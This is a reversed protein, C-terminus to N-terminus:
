FNGILHNFFTLESEKENGTENLVINMIKDFYKWSNENKDNMVHPFAYSLVSSFHFKPCLSKEDNSFCNLINKEQLLIIENHYFHKWKKYLYKEFKYYKERIIKFLIPSNLIGLDRIILECGFQTNLDYKKLFDNQCYKGIQLLTFTKKTTPSEKVNEFNCFNSNYFKLFTKRKLINLKGFTNEYSLNLINKSDSLIKEIYFLSSFLESKKGSKPQNIMHQIGLYMLINKTSEYVLPSKEICAFNTQTENKANLSNSSNSPCFSGIKQAM